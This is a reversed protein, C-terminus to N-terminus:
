ARADFAALWGLAFVPAAATLADIRDLVGGHGPLLRGSDKVGALRKMKSEALDGVVSILMSGIALGIWVGLRAGQLHWIMTGCVYGLLMATIVGGIVGEVTKGPSIAPALKTRGFVHGVAYAGSDAFGIVLLLSLLLLPRDPDTDHLFSVALWAPVLTLIGALWRGGNSEFIGNTGRVLVILVLLWWLAAVGFVVAAVARDARVAMLLAAGVAVVIAIYGVRTARRWRCLGGWEWAAAVGFAGFLLAVGLSPLVFLAVLLLAILLIATAIRQKLM